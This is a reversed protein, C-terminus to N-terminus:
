TKKKRTMKPPVKARERVSEEFARIRSELDELPFTHRYQKEDYNFFFTFPAFETLFTALPISNNDASFFATVDIIAGVPILNLDDSSVLENQVNFLIPFEENTRDSRIYGSAKVIPDNTLNKGNAQFQGVVISGDPAGMGIFDTNKHVEFGWNFDSIPKSTTEEIANGPSANGVLFEDLGDPQQRLQWIVGGTAIALGLAVIYIPKLLMLFGGNVYAMYGLTALAGIGAVWLISNAIWKHHPWRLPAVGAGLTVFSLFM